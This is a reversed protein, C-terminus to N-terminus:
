EHSGTARLAGVTARLQKATHWAFVPAVAVPPLIVAFSTTSPTVGGSRARRKRPATLAPRFGEVKHLQTLNKGAEIAAYITDPNSV